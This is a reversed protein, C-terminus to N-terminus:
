REVLELSVPGRLVTSDVRQRAPTVRTLRPLEPILLELVACAELRALSAGLCFHAGQGFALHPKSERTIDFRDPDAFQRDDRNAAGILLAVRSDRPIPVGAIKVDEKARRFMLHVPADFRLVEEILAPIREPESGVLELTKPHDLLLSVTTGILNTTTENGAVILLVVFAFLSEADLTDGNAPDVLVSVLDDSPHQKREAMLGRLYANLEGLTVLLPGITSDRGSGSGAAALQNSWRKLDAHRERDIGLIEAIIAVPLPIALDRVADFNMPDPRDALLGAAIERIRPEWDRIHRPTFGRNVISRMRNHQPADQTILGKGLLAMIRLPNLRARWLFRTM